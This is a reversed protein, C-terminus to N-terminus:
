AVMQGMTMTTKFLYINNKLKKKPCILKINNIITPKKRGKRSLCSV